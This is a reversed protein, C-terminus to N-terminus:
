LDVTKRKKVNSPKSDNNNPPVSQRFHPSIQGFQKFFEEFETWDQDDLMQMQTDMLEKFVDELNDGNLQFLQIDGQLKEFSDSFLSDMQIGGDFISDDLQLMMETIKEDIEEM